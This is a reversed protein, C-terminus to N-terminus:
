RTAGGGCAAGFGLSADAYAPGMPSHPPMPAMGYLMSMGYGYGSGPGGGTNPGGGGAGMPMCPGPPSGPGMGGVPSQPPFLGYPPPMFPFYHSPSGPGGGPSVMSDHQAQSCTCFPM